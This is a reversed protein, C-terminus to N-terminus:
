ECGPHDLSHVRGARVTPGYPENLVQLEVERQVLRQGRVRERRELGEVGLLRRIREIDHRDDLRRELVRARNEARLLV